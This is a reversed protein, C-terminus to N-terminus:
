ATSKRKHELKEKLNDLYNMREKGSKRLLASCKNRNPSLVAKLKNKLYLYDVLSYFDGDSTIIVAKDFSNEHLDIMAKLVLDADINGKPKKDDGLVVPKFVLVYGYEQLADYLRQNGAVFGIFIYAKSVGYKEKLYVRFRRSDLTWGMDKIGLNLNQSDIFAYNNEKARM